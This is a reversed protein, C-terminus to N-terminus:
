NHEPKVIQMYCAVDSCDSEIFGLLQLASKVMGPKAFKVCIWNLCMKGIMGVCAFSVGKIGHWFYTPQYASQVTQLKNIAAIAIKTDHLKINNVDGSFSPFVSGDPLDLGINKGWLKSQNTSIYGAIAKVDNPITDACKNLHTLYSNWKQNYAQIIFYAIVM